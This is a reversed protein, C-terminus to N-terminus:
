EATMDEVLSTHLPTARTQGARKQTILETQCAKIMLLWVPKCFFFFYFTFTFLFIRGFCVQHASSRWWDCIEKNGISVRHPFWPSYAPEWHESIIAERIFVIEIITENMQTKKLTFLFIVISDNSLFCCMVGICFFIRYDRQYQDTAICFFYFHFYTSDVTVPLVCYSIPSATWKFPDDSETFHCQFTVKEPHFSAPSFDPQVFASGQPSAGLSRSMLPAPGIEQKVLAVM